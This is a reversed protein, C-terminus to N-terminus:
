IKFKAKGVKWSIIITMSIHPPFGWYVFPWSASEYIHHKENLKPCALSIIMMEHFSPLAFDLIQGLGLQFSSIMIDALDALDLLTKGIQVIKQCKRNGFM